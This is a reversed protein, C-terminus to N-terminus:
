INSTVLDPFAIKWVEFGGDLSYVNELGQEALYQAAGQSSNGHYCCVVVPKEKEQLAQSLFKPVTNNDLLEANTIHGGFYSNQDRIDVISVNNEDIKEKLQAPNIHQFM